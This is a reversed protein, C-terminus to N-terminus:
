GGQRWADELGALMAGTGIFSRIDELARQHAASSHSATGEELVVPLFGAHLADRATAHVCVAAAAAVSHGKKAFAGEEHCFDNQVDIVALLCRAPDLLNDDM